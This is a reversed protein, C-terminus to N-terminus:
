RRRFFVFALGLLLCLGASLLTTRLGERLGPLTYRFEIRNEMVPVEVGMLLGNVLKIPVPVGNVNAEWGPSWGEDFVFVL